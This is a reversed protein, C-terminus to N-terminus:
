EGTWSSGGSEGMHEVTTTSVNVDASFFIDGDYIPVSINTISKGHHEGNTPTPTPTPTLEGEDKSASIAESVVIWDDQASSSYTTNDKDRRVIAGLEFNHEPM